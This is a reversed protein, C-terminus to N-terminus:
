RYTMDHLTGDMINQLIMDQIVDVDLPMCTQMRQMDRELLKMDRANGMIYHKVHYQLDDVSEIGLM